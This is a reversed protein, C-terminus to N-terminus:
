LTKRRYVRRGGLLEFPSRFRRIARALSKMRTDGVFYAKMDSPMVVSACRPVEEAVDLLRAVDATVDVIKGQAAAPLQRKLTTWEDAPMLLIIHSPENM